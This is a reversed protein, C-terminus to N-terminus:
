PGKRAWVMGRSAGLHAIDDLMKQFRERPAALGKRGAPPYPDHFQVREEDIGYAVVWHPVEEQHVEQMGVLCLPVWGAALAEAVDDVTPPQEVVEVQAQELESRAMRSALETLRADEETLFTLLLDQPLTPLKENYVRLEYGQDLLPLALGFADTGGVGILCTRRWVKFENVRCLEFPDQQWYARTMLVCAPGCSFESTQAYYPVDLESGPM